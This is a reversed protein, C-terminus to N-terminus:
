EILIARFDNVNTLTPGTVVLDDLAAFVTYADNGALHSRPDLGLSRARFATQGDAFAGANDASGDIGDTDGALASIGEEGDICLALSLLFESNRGGRGTRSVTVSTEGGSLLLCPRTFSTGARRVSRAIGALARGVERAEGELADGLVVPTVGAQRAFSAAAALASRGSAVLRFSGAKFAPHDPSPPLTDTSALFAAIAPPAAIGYRALVDLAEKPGSMAPVTPGSAITSPEDGPVDSIALTVVPAPWAATALRGGGLRSLVCRVRNMDGIPAGSKLLAMNIAKVEALPVGEPPLMMLSSGGGSVLCLVLDREGLEQVLTLLEAAAREGAEDPNPHGAEVVRIHRCEARHGHRVIVLGDVPGPWHREVVQAMSAAAKGAGVVVTRGAPPDPLHRAMVVEPRCSAVARDFCARLFQRSDM